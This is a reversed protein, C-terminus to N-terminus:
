HYDIGRSVACGDMEDSVFASPFKHVLRRPIRGEHDCGDGVVYDDGKEGVVTFRELAYLRFPQQGEGVDKVLYSSEPQEDALRAEAWGKDIVYGYGSAGIIKTADAIEM